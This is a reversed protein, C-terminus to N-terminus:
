CPIEKSNLVRKTHERETESVDELSKALWQSAILKFVDGGRALLPVLIKDKSFHAMLRLELQSYDASVLVHGERAVFADRVLLLQSRLYSQHIYVRYLQKM